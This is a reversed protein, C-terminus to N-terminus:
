LEERGWTSYWGGDEKECGWSDRREPDGGKFKSKAPYACLPRTPADSENGGSLKFGELVEPFSGEEVWARLTELGKLPYFTGNLGYCHYLGPAEFHRYYRDAKGDRELVKDYYDRSTRMTVCEDALGHWSIMKKGLRKFESLDPDNAGILGEYERRSQEFAAELDAYDMGAVDYGPDKHVLNRIWEVSMRFPHGTCPRDPVSCNVNGLGFRGTFPAGIPYGKLWLPRGEADHPGRWIERAIRATAASMNMRKDGCDLERGVVSEPDFDCADPDAIVGDRVGDMEDCAEVALRTMMVLECVHPYVGMRNMVFQPWYTSVILSPQNVAPAGALIGDYDGPYRQAEIVGQRGGTSCGSWYSYAAPRAYFQAVIQKAIVTMDHVAVHAYNTLLRENITGDDNLAWPAEEWTRYDHGADTASTAYGEALTAVIKESGFQGASYGGGGVGVFRGNWAGAPPLWVQVRTLDDSGAHVYEVTVNCFSVGSSPIAARGEPTTAPTRTTPAGLDTVPQALVRVVDAGELAPFRFTTPACHKSSGHTTTQTSIAGAPGAPPQSWRLATLLTQLSKM